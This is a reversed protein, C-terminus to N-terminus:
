IQIAYITNNKNNQICSKIISFLSKYSINYNFFHLDDHNYKIFLKGEVKNNICNIRLIDIKMSDISKYQEIHSEIKNLWFYSYYNIPNHLLCNFTSGIKNLLILKKIKFIFCSNIINKLGYYLSSNITFIGYFVYDKNKFLYNSKNSYINGKILTINSINPLKDYNDIFIIYINSNIFQKKITDIYPVFTKDLVFLLNNYHKNIM